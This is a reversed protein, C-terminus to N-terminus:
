QHTVAPCAERQVADATVDTTVTTVLLAQGDNTVSSDKLVVILEPAIALWAALDTQDLLEFYCDSGFAVTLLPMEATYATDVWRTVAGDEHAVQQAVFSKGAVYRTAPESAVV